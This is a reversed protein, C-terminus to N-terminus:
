IRLALQQALPVRQGRVNCFVQEFAEIDFALPRCLSLGLSHFNDVMFPYKTKICVINLSVKTRLSDTANLNQVGFGLFPKPDWCSLRM